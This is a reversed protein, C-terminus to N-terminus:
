GSLGKERGEESIDLTFSIEPVGEFLIVSIKIKLDDYLPEVDFSIIEKRNKRAELNFRIKDSETTLTRYLQVKSM